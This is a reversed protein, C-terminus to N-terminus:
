CFFLSSGTLRGVAVVSGNRLIGTLFYRISDRVVQLCRGCSTTGPSGSEPVTQPGVYAGPMNEPVVLLTPWNTLILATAECSMSKETRPATLWLSGTPHGRLPLSQLTMWHYYDAHLAERPRFVGYVEEAATMRPPLSFTPVTPPFM